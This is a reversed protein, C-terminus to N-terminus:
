TRVIESPHNLQRRTVGGDTKFTSTREDCELCPHLKNDNDNYRSDMLYFLSCKGLCRRRTSKINDHWVKACPKSLGADSLCSVVNWAMACRKGVATMDNSTVTTIDDVSGCPGAVGAGAYEKVVDGLHVYSGNRFVRGFDDHQSKILGEPHRLAVALYGLAMLVLLGVGSSAMVVPVRPTGGVVTQMGGAFVWISGVGTAAAGALQSADDGVVAGVGYTTLGIGLTAFALYRWLPVRFMGSTPSKVIWMSMLAVLSALAVSGAVAVGAPIMRKYVACLVVSVIVAIGIACAGCFLPLDM